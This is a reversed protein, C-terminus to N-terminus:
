VTVGVESDSEYGADDCPSDITVVRNGRLALGV